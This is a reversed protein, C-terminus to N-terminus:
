RTLGYGKIKRDLTSREIGLIAAAQSKNWDTHKLTELIHRKEVEELSEPKFHHSLPAVVASGVDLESLWIDSADITPGSGLAVAREVVNRLERVNGPWRYGRLKAVAGDTFGRIKRGTERVFRKLFHEALLPVDEVRDRLPPVDLQVVQLRFFLDRRFTGARVAEELPRNTAAVVRVDVKIPTNGGVREFPHGELVRLFKAQTSLAMEGIEDLFITGADAAEFKGIMRETAGTFAGKEHGFLESELLSETLAACNMTVFPADRRPSSNHLARAVLEKGVGSEGRILVTAKTEAVRAVQGEINTLAPSEGVLESELRLQDKLSKV